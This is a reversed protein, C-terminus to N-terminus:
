LALTWAAKGAFEAVHSDIGADITETVRGVSAQIATNALVVVAIERTLASGAESTGQTLDWYVRAVGVLALIIGNAHWVQIIILTNTWTRLVGALVTLNIIIDTLGSATFTQISARTHGLATIDLARTRRVPSASSALLSSVWACIVQAEVVTGANGVLIVIGEM